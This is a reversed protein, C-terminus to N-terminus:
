TQLTWRLKKCCLMKRLRILKTWEKVPTTTTVAATEVINKAPLLMVTQVLDAKLHQASEEVLRQPMVGRAVPEAAQLVVTHQDVASAALLVEVGVGAEEAEVGEGRELRELGVGWPVEATVEAVGLLVSGVMREVRAAKLLVVKEGRGMVGLLRAPVEM